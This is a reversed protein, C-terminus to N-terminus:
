ERASDWFIETRSALFIKGRESVNNAVVEDEFRSGRYGQPRSCDVPAALQLPGTESLIV